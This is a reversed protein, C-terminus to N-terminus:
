DYWRCLGFGRAKAQKPETDSDIMIDDIYALQEVAYWTVSFRRYHQRMFGPMLSMLYRVSDDGGARQQCILENPVLYFNDMGRSGIIKGTVSLTEDETFHDRLLPPVIREEEALHERMNDCMTTMRQRLEDALVNLQTDDMCGAFQQEMAAIADLQKLLTKHDDTMRQPMVM